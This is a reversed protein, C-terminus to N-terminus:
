SHPIALEDAGRKLLLVPVGIRCSQDGHAKLAWVTDTRGLTNNLSVTINRRERWAKKLFRTVSLNIKSDAKAVGTSKGLLIDTQDSKSLGGLGAEGSALLASEVVRFMKSRHRDHASCTVLLHRVDEDGDGCLRCYREEPPLKEERAVRTM